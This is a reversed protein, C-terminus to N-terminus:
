GGCGGCYVGLVTQSTTGDDVSGTITVEGRFFTPIFATRAVGEDNTMATLLSLSGAEPIDLGFSVPVGVMPSGSADMVRAIVQVRTQFDTVVDRDTALTVQAAQPAAAASDFEIGPWLARAETATEFSGLALGIVLLTGFVITAFGCRPTFLRRM